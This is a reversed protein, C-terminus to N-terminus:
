AASLRKRLAAASKSGWIGDPRLGAARQFRKVATTTLQGYFGTVPGKFFGLKALNSQLRKVVGAPMGAVTPAGTTSSSSGSAAAATLAASTAPGWVGDATLGSAKQFAKVAATTMPGYFGTVPGTFYGLKTLETQLTQVTATSQGGPNAAAPTTSPGAVAAGSGAVTSVWTALAQIDASSLSGSFSPMGGGGTSVQDAVAAISPRLQDLNPGVTGAAQAAQLTHCGGCGARSWVDPGTSALAGGPLLFGLATMGAVISVQKM